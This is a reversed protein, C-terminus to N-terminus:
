GLGYVSGGNGPANDLTASTGTITVGFGNIYSAGNVVVITPTSTFTFVTNTNNIAGTAALYGLGGASPANISKTGDPNATITVNTGAKVTDGGGRAWTDKGYHKGALQSRYSEIEPVLGDIHDKKLLKKSTIEEVVHSTVAGLDIVPTQGDKPQRIQRLVESVMQARHEPTFYHVGLIPTAGPEGPNGDKPTPINDLVTKLVYQIYPLLEEQTYVSDGKQGPEGQDGKQLNRHKEALADANELSTELQGKLTTLEGILQQVHAM